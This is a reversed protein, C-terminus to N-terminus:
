LLRGPQTAIARARGTLQCLLQGKPISFSGLPRYCALSSCGKRWSKYMTVRAKLVAGLKGSDTTSFLLKPEATGERVEDMELRWGGVKYGNELCSQM